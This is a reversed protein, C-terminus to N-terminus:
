FYNISLSGLVLFLWTICSRATSFKRFWSIFGMCNEQLMWLLQSPLSLSVGDAKWIERDLLCNCQGRWVPIRAWFLPKPLLCVLHGLSGGYYIPHILCWSSPHVSNKFVALGNFFPCWHWTNRVHFQGIDDIQSLSECGFVQNLNLHLTM